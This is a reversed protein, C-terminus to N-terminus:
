NPSLPNSSGEFCGHPASLGVGLNEIRLSCIGWFMGMETEWRKARKRPARAPAQRMTEKAVGGGTKVTDVIYMPNNQGEELAGGGGM